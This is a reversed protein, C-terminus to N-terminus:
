DGFREALADGLAPHTDPHQALAILAQPLVRPHTETGAWEAFVDDAREDYPSPVWSEIEM